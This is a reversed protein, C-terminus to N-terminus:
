PEDDYDYEHPRTFWKAGLWCIVVAFPIGIALAKALVVLGNGMDAALVAM